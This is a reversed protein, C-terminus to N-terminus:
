CWLNAVEMGWKLIEDTIEEPTGNNVFDKMPIKFDFMDETIWGRADGDFTCGPRIVRAILVKHGYGCEILAEVEEKFGGDSVIYSQDTSGLDRALAHGFYHKGFAPKIVDESIRILEERLTRGSFMPIPTEKLRRYADEDTLDCPRFAPYANLLIRFLETKFSARPMGSEKAITDKGCKPPGNLLLVTAM